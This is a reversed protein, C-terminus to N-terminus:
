GSRGIKITFLARKLDSFWWWALCFLLSDSGLSGVCLCKKKENVYMLFSEWFTENAHM